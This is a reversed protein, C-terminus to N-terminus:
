LNVSLHKKHLKHETYQKRYLLYDTLKMRSANVNWVTRQKPREQKYTGSSSPLWHVHLLLQHVIQVFVAIKGEKEIKWSAGTGVLSLDSHLLDPHCFTRASINPYSPLHKLIYFDLCVPFPSELKFKLDHIRYKSGRGSYWWTWTPYSFSPLTQAEWPFSTHWRQLHCSCAPVPATQLM